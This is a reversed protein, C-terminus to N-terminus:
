NKHSRLLEERLALVAFVLTIAGLFLFSVLDPTQLHAM